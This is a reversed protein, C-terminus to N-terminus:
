AADLEYCDRHKRAARKDTSRRSKLVQEAQRIASKVEATQRLDQLEELWARWDASSASSEPYELNSM